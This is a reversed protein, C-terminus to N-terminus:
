RVNSSESGLFGRVFSRVDAPKRLRAVKHGHPALREATLARSLAGWDDAAVPEVAPKVYYSSMSRVFRAMRRLGPYRNRGLLSLKFHRTVIRRQAVRAPLDLWVVLDARELLPAIDYLFIGEVVWSDRAALEARDAFPDLDLEIPKVGVSRALTRALTTKGSGGAGIIYIREGTTKEGVDGDDSRSRALDAAYRDRLGRGPFERLGEPSPAVTRFMHMDCDVVM